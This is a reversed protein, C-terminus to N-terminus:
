DFRKEITVGVQRPDGLRKYLANPFDPPENGFFFGRVAYERDLLNRGWLHVLWSEGEYGIRANLLAYSSSKQDHSVDFYFEDRAVVDLRAFYGSDDRYAVGGSFTYRPAHAQDRGGLDGQPAIFEDFTADLLGVNAYMEWASSIAWNVDAELGLTEGEAANDTFFRMSMRITITQGAFPNLNTKVVPVVLSSTEALALFPSKPGAGSATKDVDQSWEQTPDAAESELVLIASGEAGSAKVILLPDAAYLESLIDRGQDRCREAVDILTRLIPIEVGASHAIGLRGRLTIHPYLQILM